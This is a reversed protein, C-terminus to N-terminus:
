SSAKLSRILSAADPSRVLSEGVLVADYGAARMRKADGPTNIGSEAVRIQVGDLLPALREATGLDVDFSDLNRNNVGVITAGAGLAAALEWEDHVEVLAALGAEDATDILVALRDHELAAVILLVADAGILRAEWIQRPDIIFDKRLVPLTVSERIAILDSNSGGFFAPETLVSVASAGGRQYDRAQAVPELEHSFEGRSPSRRKFEAIVSLGGDALASAFAGVRPTPSPEAQLAAVSPLRDIRNHTAALIQDLM